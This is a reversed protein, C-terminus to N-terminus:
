KNRKTQLYAGVWSVDGWTEMNKKRYKVYVCKCHVYYKFNIYILVVIYLVIM